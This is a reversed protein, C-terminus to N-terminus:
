FPKAMAIWAAATGAAISGLLLVPRPLIKRKALTPVVGLFLWIALKAMWWYQTMPPKKLIAFGVLVLVLLAVGHMITARKRCQDSSEALIVGISTFLLIVGLIHLSKLIFITEMTTASNFM